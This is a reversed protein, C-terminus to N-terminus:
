FLIHWMAWTIVIQLIHCVQDTVLNIILKNAKANDIYAHIITNSVLYILYIIMRSINMDNWYAILIPLMISFSWSFAHIILCVIYDYRYKRTEELVDMNKEKCMKTIQDQWWTRQKMQALIGQLYFDDVIHIFIMIPLLLLM